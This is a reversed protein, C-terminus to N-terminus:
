DASVAAASRAVLLKLKLRTMKAAEAVAQEAILKIKMTMAINSIPMRKPFIAMTNTAHNSHMYTVSQRALHNERMMYKQMFNHPLVAARETQTPKFTMMM